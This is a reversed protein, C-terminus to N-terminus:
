QISFPVLDDPVLEKMHDGDFGNKKRVKDLFAKMEKETARQTLQSRLKSSLDNFAPAPHDEKEILYFIRYVTKKDVRSTQLTPRSYESPNLAVLAAKHAETLEKDTANYENSVQIAVGPAEFEKLSVADPTKGNEILYNYIKEALTDDPTETRISVARYKWNTYAPNEQLYLRYAQRIDQPTVSQSAKSHVFWWTMRQVIMEKRMMKWAEDFSIGIEDLTMMVNPGFRNEIEERIEGDTLKVGKAEADALILESDIADMLCQRWSSKYFQLKAQPQDELHAYHQHFLMDMKKKVDMMSITNGNVKALISNQVAIKPENATLSTAALALLVFNKM